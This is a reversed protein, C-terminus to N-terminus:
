AGRKTAQDSACAQSRQWECSGRSREGGAERLVVAHPRAIRLFDLRSEASRMVCLLIVRRLHHSLVSDIDALLAAPTGLNRGHDIIPESRVQMRSKASVLRGEPLMCVWRLVVFPM